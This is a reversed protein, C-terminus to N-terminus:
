FVQDTSWAFHEPWHEKEVWYTALYSGADIPSAVADSGAPFRLDKHLPPSVWRGGPLIWPGVMCGGYFHDREYWRNYAVEHGRNPDVLTYLMAGVRVADDM